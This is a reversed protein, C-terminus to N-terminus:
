DGEEDSLFTLAISEPSAQKLSQLIRVEEVCTKKFHVLSLCSNHKQADGMGELSSQM